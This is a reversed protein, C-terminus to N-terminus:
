GNNTVRFREVPAGIVTRYVLGLVSSPASTWNASGQLWCTTRDVTTNTNTALYLVEQGNSANVMPNTVTTPASDECQM